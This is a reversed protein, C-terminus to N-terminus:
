ISTNLIFVGIYFQSQIENSFHQNEAQKTARKWSLVPARSHSDEQRFHFSTFGRKVKSVDACGGGRPTLVRDCSWGEGQTM